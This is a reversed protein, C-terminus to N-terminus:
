RSSAGSRSLSEAIRLAQDIELGERGAIWCAIPAAVRQSSHAAVAALALLREFQEASPPDGGAAAAFRAIWQEATPLEAPDHEPM